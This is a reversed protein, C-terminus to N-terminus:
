ANSINTLISHINSCEFRSKTFQIDKQPRKLSTYETVFDASLFLIHYDIIVIVIYYRQRSKTFGVM